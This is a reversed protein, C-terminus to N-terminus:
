SFGFGLQEVHKEAQRLSGDPLIHQVNYDLDLLSPVILLTRHCTEPDGESCMMATPQAQALEQLAALGQQYLPTQRQRSYNPRQSGPDYLDTQHPRGGLTDGLFKYDIGALALARALQERNFQPNWRSYPQSRVDALCTVGHRQLLAVFEEIPHTSHGVTYLIPQSM